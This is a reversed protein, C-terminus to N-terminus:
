RRPRRRTSRIVPSQTLLMKEAALAVGVAAFHVKRLNAAAAAKLARARRAAREADDLRQQASSM